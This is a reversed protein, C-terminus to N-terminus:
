TFTGTGKSKEKVRGKSTTGKSTGKSKKRKIRSFFIIFYRDEKGGDASVRNGYGEGGNLIKNFM